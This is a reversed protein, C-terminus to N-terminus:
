VVTAFSSWVSVSVSPQSEELSQSFAEAAAESKFCDRYVKLRLRDGLSEEVEAPMYLLNDRGWKAVTWNQAVRVSVVISFQKYIRAALQYASETGDPKESRIREGFESELQGATDIRRSGQYKLLWSKAVGDTICIPPDLAM